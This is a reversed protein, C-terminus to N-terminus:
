EQMSIDGHTQKFDDGLLHILARWIVDAASTIEFGKEERGMTCIPDFNRFHEQPRYRFVESKFWLM